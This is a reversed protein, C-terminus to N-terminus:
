ITNFKTIGVNTSMRLNNSDDVLIGYVTDNCLGDKMTYRTIKSDEIKNLGYSTGVWIDGNLDEVISRVNSNSLSNQDIDSYIFNVVEKTRPDIKLLGENRFLGLYYYGNSDEYITYIFSSLNGLSGIDNVISMDKTDIINIGNDTGVWLYGKSDLFVKNILNSSLGDETTIIEVTKSHKDIRNLGNKTAVYIDNGYGTIDKISYDSLKVEENGENIYYITDNERDIINLGESNTGVWLLEEDDEYIGHVSKQSLSNAYGEEGSYYTIKSNPDFVSIGLYTGIWILGECDEYIDKVNNNILSNKDNPNNKYTIFNDKEYNYKSLGSNTGIWLNGNNDIYIDGILGNSISYKDSPDNVYFQKENTELDIRIVGDEKTGVWMYGNEDYQLNYIDKTAIQTETGNEFSEILELDKSFKDLGNNTAVWLNENNDVEMSYIRNSTMNEDLELRIFEDKEKDYLDMGQTTSVIIEGDVFLIDSIYSNSLTGGSQEGVYKTITDNEIDIKNLGNTTGVWMYGDYDEIIETIFNGSLSENKDESYKYVRFSHGNYRNLGDHTGIWIYGRSDQFIIEVTSQSLGDEVGINHFNVTYTAHINTTSFCILIFLSSLIKYYNFM